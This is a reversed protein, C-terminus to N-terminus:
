QTPACCLLSPACTCSFNCQTQFLWSVGKNLSKAGQTLSHFFFRLFLELSKSCSVTTRILLHSSLSTFVDQKEEETLHGMTGTTLLLCAPLTSTIMARNPQYMVHETSAVKWHWPQMHVWTNTHSTRSSIHCSLWSVLKM